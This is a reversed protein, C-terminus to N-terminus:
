LNNINSKKFQYSVGFTLIKDTQKIKEAVVQEYNIIYQANFNLGKWIPIEVGGDVQVRNNAIAEFAPQWYGNYFIRLNKNGIKHIGSVYATGRWLAIDNNGNYEMQNFQNTSFRTKENVVSASLKITSIESRVAQFTIGVGGFFRYDIKRRFNTQAFLMAFPYTKQRPKYYLYNRSNIDNDAKFDGFHQYLSSNQSKFVVDKTGNAVFDYKGRVVLLDVNGKQWSGSASARMQFKLTDSENLQAIAVNRSLLMAMAIVIKNKM